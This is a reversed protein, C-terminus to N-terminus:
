VRAQKLTRYYAPWDLKIKQKEAMRIATGVVYGIEDRFKVGKKAQLKASYLAEQFIHESVLSLKLKAELPLNKLNKLHNSIELPHFFGGAPKDPVTGTNRKRSSISHTVESTVEISKFYKRKNLDIAILYAPIGLVKTRNKGRSHLTLWGYKIFKQLTRNVHKRSCNLKEAIKEQKPFASPFKKVWWAVAQWIKKEVRGLLDYQSFFETAENQDIKLVLSM